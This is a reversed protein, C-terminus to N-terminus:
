NKNRSKYNHKIKEHLKNNSLNLSNFFYNDILIIDM